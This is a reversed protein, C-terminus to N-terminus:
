TDRTVMETDRTVIELRAARWGFMGGRMNYIRTFDMQQMKKMAGRSRVGSTCYVLYIKSKDLKAVSDAFGKGWYDLNRAGRIYGKIFEGPTRVDLIALDGKGAHEQIIKEAKTVSVNRHFGQAFGPLVTALLILGILLIQRM